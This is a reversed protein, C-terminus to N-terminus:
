GGRLGRPDGRAVRRFGRGRRLAPLGCVLDLEGKGDALLMAHRRGVHESGERLFGAEISAVDPADRNVVPDRHNAKGSVDGFLHTAPM